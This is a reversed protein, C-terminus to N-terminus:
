VIVVDKSRFVPRMFVQSAQDRFPVFECRPGKSFLHTSCETCYLWTKKCGNRVNHALWPQRIGPRLSLKNTAPDHEFVAPAEHAFTAPCWRLLFPPQAETMPSGDEDLLEDGDRNTPPGSCKNSTAAKQNCRGYLWAGCQSCLGDLLPKSCSSQGRLFWRALEYSRDLNFNAVGKRTWDLCMQWYLARGLTLLLRDM